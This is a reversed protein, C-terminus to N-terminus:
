GVKCTARKMLAERGSSITYVRLALSAILRTACVQPAVVRTGPSSIMTDTASCWELMTDQCSMACRM